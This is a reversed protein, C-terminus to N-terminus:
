ICARIPARHLEDIIAGDIRGKMKRKIYSSLPFRRVAGTNPYFANPNRCIKLVQEYVKGSPAKELYSAAFRRHVFGFGGVKAWDTQMAPELPAWLVSGCSQCKHNRNNERLFDVAAAPSDYSVGDETIRVMIQEGCQPCLFARQTQNWVASPYRSYGDRAREKSIVAFATRSGREYARHFKKLENISQIVAANANPISETIERVWKKAVHGPGLVVNFTKSKGSAKHSGCLATLGMKTKGIGCEAVFVGPKHRDIRRKVAECGALQAEYLRYGCSRRINENIELIEPSVPEKAPDFLPNFQDKIREATAVGFEHLYQTLTDIKEFVASNEPTAGPIVLQGSAIGENVTDILNQENETLCLRWLDFKEHLSFVAYETLFGKRILERLFYDRFAPILPVGTRLDIEEFLRDSDGTPTLIYCNRSAAMKTQGPQDEQSVVIQPDDELYLLAEAYLGDMSLSRHYQKQCTRASFTDDKWELHLSGGGYIADSMARVQEPYGGFRIAALELEGGKTKRYAIADAYCELFINKEQDRYTARVLQPTPM